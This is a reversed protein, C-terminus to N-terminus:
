TPIARHPPRMLPSHSRAEAGAEALTGIVLFSPNVAVIEPAARAFRGIGALM